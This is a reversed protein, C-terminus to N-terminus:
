YGIKNQSNFSKGGPEQFPAPRPSNGTVGRVDDVGVMNRRNQVATDRALAGESKIEENFEKEYDVRQRENMIDGPRKLMPEGVLQNALLRVQHVSKAVQGTVQYLTEMIPKGDELKERIQQL